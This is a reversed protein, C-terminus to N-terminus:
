GSSYVRSTNASPTRLEQGYGPRIGGPSRRRTWSTQHRRDGNTLATSHMRSAAASPDDFVSDLLNSADQRWEDARNLAHHVAAMAAEMDHDPLPVPLAALVPVNIHVGFQDGALEM